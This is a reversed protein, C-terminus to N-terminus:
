EWEIEIVIPEAPYDDAPIGFVAPFPGNARGNEGIYTPLKENRIALPLGSNLLRASRPVGPADFFNVATVSLGQYFHLYTKRNKRVAVFPDPANIRYPYPDAETNELNGEMRTYWDGVRRILRQTQPPIKGSPMPGANLLYSGGMAMIKDVSSMLFRASYYDEMRRYGWSQEGVSQCAETMQTFRSGEPVSREPTAFDGPDFGRNNILIGPMLGRVMENISPDEYRPPIDWFLTYIKGYGCLLERIQNKVYERYRVTDAKEPCRCKWQHSSLPNYATEQNWDPVSYYLSLSMGHKECAEALMKLVDRGYPTHMINYDTYKTDWMCFGDHHKATFCIYKMGAEKALLVWEEPDYGVPNFARALADYEERPMDCRAFAQEHEGTLAYIGWHVFMGFRNEM